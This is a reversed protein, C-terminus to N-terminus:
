RPCVDSRVVGGTPCCSYDTVECLLPKYQGGGPVLLQKLSTIGNIFGIIHEFQLVIGEKNICLYYGQTKFFEKSRLAAL